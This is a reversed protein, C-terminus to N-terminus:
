MAQGTPLIGVQWLNVRPPLGVLFAVTQAVDDPTLWEVTEETSALWALAGADTVHSQLETGVIGPEIAAVRVKKSGLEARLNKTLHTIYAKSAAYVAFNVYINQAAISSTNVLDAVGDAAASAILQPTFAAITSMAATINLDIQHQWQDVAFEDVPAPLMIGANNLVISARGLEAEVRAAADILAPTDTLDVGLALATGGAATIRAAIEDLRDKRRALLAVAAGRAALLEATAAGIGSSAGTVVAVRGTLPGAPVAQSM